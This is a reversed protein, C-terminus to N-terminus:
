GRLTYGGRTVCHEVADRRGPNGEVQTGRRGVPEVPHRHFSCTEIGRAQRRPTTDDVLDLRRPHLISPLQEDYEGHDRRLRDEDDREQALEALAPDGRLRAVSM